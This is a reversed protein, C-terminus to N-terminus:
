GVIITLGNQRGIYANIVPRHFSQADLAPLSVNNSVIQFSEHDARSHPWIRETKFIRLAGHILRAM